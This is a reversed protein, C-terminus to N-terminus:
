PDKRMHASIETQTISSPVTWTPNLVVGTIESTVTPSPKDPKGVVVRYRRVVKDGEIAEAFAAPINVVVYRQGFPFNIHEVRDLSAELQKLRKQVPVNLAAMTRSMVAGTMPLGHRQQFHKVAEVVTEDFPGTNKDSALDGTVILRKRLIDDNPGATGIAFKADSPITPWGGHAAIDSYREIAQKIRAASGQDFVPDHSLALEAASRTEENSVSTTQTAHGAAPTSVAPVPGVPAPVLEQALAATATITSAVALIMITKMAPGKLGISGEAFANLVAIATVM